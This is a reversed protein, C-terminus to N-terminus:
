FNRVKAEFKEELRKILGEQMSDVEESTLTKDTQYTIHFALSKNKLGIKMGEYVDFLEAKKILESYSLIEKRFDNYLIKKDVVFALDRVAAPFKEFEDFKNISNQALKIINEVPIEIIVANKKVGINKATNKALLSIRGTVQGDMVINGSMYQDEWAYRIEASSFEATLGLGKALYEVIGKASDLLKDLKGENALLIGLKEEQFPLFSDSMDDVPLNGSTPLFVQGIEYIGISESRSQNKVIMALLNPALNQRLLSQHASIPNLIGIHSAHDIGMKKLQDEGVFSYGSVESLGCGLALLNRVKRKIIVAENLEVNQMRIDPMRTEINDYGFIRAVEEVIDEPQSIDRTARWSPITIALAGDKKEVEFGLKNLTGITWKKDLKNGVTKEIHEFSIMIPGQELKFNKEDAVGSVIKADPCVQRILSICRALAMECLNPDLAKEYRMSAETRLGLKQSTQRISVHEFNASEIVISTSEASIESSEGGMVGAIALPAYKDAILLMGEDLTRSKGDLTDIKEDKMSKRVIIEIGNPTADGTQGIKKADFAHLPQGLELMVYNTIDVINNLPRMGVGILRQKIYEPSEAIKLGDIVVAMYRPCLKSDEVTVKINIEQNEAPIPRAICLEAAHSTLKTAFIVSMERAIGIHSWLDPRHTISKNDVEIIIDDYKLYSSFDIGIKTKGPLILIGSHDPGLGLEEESCLMGYSKEGRVEVEKIEMGNKMVAGVLAVPVHQGVSINNAGCVISLVEKGTDVQAIQLKDANPHKNIKLIKGIVINKFKDGQKEVGDVEVTHMTLKLAIEEPTLNKPIKALEKLWNLSLYM